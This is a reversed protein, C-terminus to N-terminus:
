DLDFNGPYEMFFNNYKIKLAIQYKKSFMVKVTVQVM